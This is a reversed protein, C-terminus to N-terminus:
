LTATWSCQSGGCPVPASLSCWIFWDLWVLDLACGAMELGLSAMTKESQIDSFHIHFRIFLPIFAFSNHAWFGQCLLSAISSEKHKPINFMWAEIMKWFSLSKPLQISEEHESCWFGFCFVNKWCFCLIFTCYTFELDTFETFLNEAAISCTTNIESQSDTHTSTYTSDHHFTTMTLVVTFPVFCLCGLVSYFSGYVPLPENNRSQEWTRLRTKM